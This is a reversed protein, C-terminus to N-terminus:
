KLFRSVLGSIGSLVLDTANTISATGPIEAAKREHARMRAPEVMLAEYMAAAVRAPDSGRSQRESLEELAKEVAQSDLVSLPAGCYGCATDRTIDVAGGCGSCRVEAVTAKISNLETPTLNRVFQKERLFHFFTTLRGHNRDCRHYTVLGSKVIDHTLTLPLRCRPCPLRVPLTHYDDARHEHIKKFLVIVSVPALQASEM